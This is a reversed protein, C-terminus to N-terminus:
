LELRTSLVLESPTAGVGWGGDATVTVRPCAKLRVSPGVELHMSEGASKVLHLFAGVRWAKAPHALLRAHSIEYRFGSGPTIPFFMEITGSVELGWELISPAIFVGGYWKGASIVPGGLVGVSSESFQLRPGTAVTLAWEGSHVDITCEEAVAWRQYAVAALLTADGATHYRTAVVWTPPASAGSGPTQARATSGLPFIVCLVVMWSWGTLRASSRKLFWRLM